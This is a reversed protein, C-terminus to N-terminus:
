IKEGSYNYGCVTAKYTWNCDFAKQFEIDYRMKFKIDCYVKEGSGQGWRDVKTTPTSPAAPKKDGAAKDDVQWSKMLIIMSIVLIVKILKNSM